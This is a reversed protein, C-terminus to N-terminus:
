QSYIVYSSTCPVPMVNLVLKTECTQKIVTAANITELHVSVSLIHYMYFPKQELAALPRNSYILYLITYQM